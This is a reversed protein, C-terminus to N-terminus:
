KMFVKSYSWIAQNQFDNLDFSRSNRTYYTIIFRNKNAQVDEERLFFQTGLDSMTATAPDQVTLAQYTSFFFM